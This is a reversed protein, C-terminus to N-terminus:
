FAYRAGLMFEHAVVDFDADVSMKGQLPSMGTVISKSVSGYDTYRYTLDIALNDTLEYAAGAGISWVFNNASEDSSLEYAQGAIKGNASSEIKIHGYGLGATVFPVFKTGTDIDYYLNFMVDYISTTTEYEHVGLNKIEYEFSNDDKADAKWDFAIEGRLAGYPLAVSAGAGVNVGFVTDKHTTDSITAGYHNKYFYDAVVDADSRVMTGTLRLAAYPSIEFAMAPTASMVCGMGMLLISKKM